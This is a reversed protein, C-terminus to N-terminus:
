RSARHPLACHARGARRRREAFLLPARRGNRAAALRPASSQGVRPHERARRPARARPRRLGAEGRAPEGGVPARPGRDVAPQSLAPREAQAAARHDGHDRRMALPRRRGRPSHRLSRGRVGRQRGAVARRHQRRRPDRVPRRSGPRVRDRGARALRFLRAHDRVSEPGGRARRTAGTRGHRRRSAPQRRLARQRRAPTAPSGKGPGHREGEFIRARM